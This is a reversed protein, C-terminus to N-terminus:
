STLQAESEFCHIMAIAQWARKKEVETIVFGADRPARNKPPPAPDHRDACIPQFCVTAEFSEQEAFSAGCEPCSPIGKVPVTAWVTPLFVRRLVLSGDPSKTWPGFSIRDGDSESYLTVCERNDLVRALQMRAAARSEASGLAFDSPKPGSNTSRNV